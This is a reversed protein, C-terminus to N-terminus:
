GDADSYHLTGHFGAPHTMFRNPMWPGIPVPGHTDEFVTSDLGTYSGGGARIEDMLSECAGATTAYVDIRCREADLNFGADALISEGFIARLIERHLAFGAPTFDVHGPEYTDDLVEPISTHLRRERDRALDEETLCRLLGAAILRELAEAYEDLSFRGLKDGQSAALTHAVFRDPPLSVRHHATCLVHYEADNM